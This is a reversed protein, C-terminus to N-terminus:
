RMFPLIKLSFFTNFIFYTNQNESCRKDLFNRMRLVSRSVTMFTWLEEHLTGTISTLNEVFEFKRSSTEFLVWTDFIMLIGETLASNNWAFSRVFPCVSLCVCSITVKSLTALAVLSGGISQQGSVSCYLGFTWVRNRIMQKLLIIVRGESWREEHLYLKIVTYKLVVCHLTRLTHLYLEV